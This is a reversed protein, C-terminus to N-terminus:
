RKYISRSEGILSSVTKHPTGSGHKAEDKGVITCTGNAFYGGFYALLFRSISLAAM